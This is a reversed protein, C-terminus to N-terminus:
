GCEGSFFSDFEARTLGTDGGADQWQSWAFDPLTTYMLCISGQEEYSMQDWALDLALANLRSDQYDDEEYARETVTVTPAPRPTSPATVTVTPTPEPEAQSEVVGCGSMSVAVITIGVATVATKWNM